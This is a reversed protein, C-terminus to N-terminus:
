QLEKPGNPTMRIHDYESVTHPDGDFNDPETMAFSAYNPLKEINENDEWSVTDEDFDFTDSTKKKLFSGYLPM